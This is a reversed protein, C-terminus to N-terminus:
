ASVVKNFASFFGEMDARSGITIRTVTPWAPFTRALEVNQAAFAAQMEHATKTKWDVMLMNAETPLIMRMKPKKFFAQTMGGVEGLGKRPQAMLDHATLSAAAAAISPIPLDHSLAGDDHMLLKKLMDPRGMCFGVRMGAM